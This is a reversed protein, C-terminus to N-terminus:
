PPRALQRGNHDLGRPAAGRRAAGEVHGMRYGRWYLRDRPTSRGMARALTPESGLTKIRFMAAANIAVRQPTKVALM